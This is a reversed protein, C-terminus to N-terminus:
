RQSRLRRLPEVLVALIIFVGVFTGQWYPDVGVLLLSNRIVEILAAGVMAGLSGGAGGALNAGGIVASAIVRLEYNQGLANTVAGLWGVILVASLGASLSCVVYASLKIREVPVGNLRAAAENGGIAYLHRGWATVRLVLAVVLGIALLVWVPNALGLTGGGGLELFAEEDPGFEYVMRNNSIVLALSRAIGLTGLTAVFPSIRLYAILGGNLLGFLLATGLGALIGVTLPLGRQLALGTVIGSLGMVSGVSLDIGGTIIVLTQGVAILGIFALNRTVNFLNDHTAFSDSVISMVATILLVSISVWFAQSRSPTSM